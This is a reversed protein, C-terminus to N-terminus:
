SRGRNFRGVARDAAKEFRKLTKPEMKPVIETVQLRGGSIEVSDELRFYFERNDSFEADSPRRTLFVSGSATRIVEVEGRIKGGRTAGIAAPGYKRFKPLVRGNAGLAKGVPVALERGHAEVKGGEAHIVASPLALIGLTLRELRTGRVYHRLQQAAQRGRRSYLWKEGARKAGANTPVFTAAIARKWDVGLGGMGQMEKRIEVALDAPVRAIARELETLGLIRVTAESM